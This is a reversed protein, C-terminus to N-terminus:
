RLILHQGCGTIVVAICGIIIGAIQTKSLKEGFFMRGAITSLILMGGNSVPFFVASPILASLTVNMRIYVCGAIGCFIMFVVTARDPAKVGNKGEKVVGFVAFLVMSVASAILIMADINGSAASKGFLKYLIGVFGGSLFFGFACVMWKVTLKQKSRKPNVCLFLSVLLMLMGLIQFANISEKAYIVGFVTAIVFACSGILTSLAVPGEAMSRTKFYLFAFLIVGYAIGYCITEPTFADKVICHSTFLIVLWVINVGANFLFPSYVNGQKKYAMGRLLCANVVSLIISILMLIYEM